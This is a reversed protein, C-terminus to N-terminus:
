IKFLPSTSNPLILQIYHTFSLFSGLNASLNEGQLEMVQSPSSSLLFLSPMQNYSSVCCGISSAAPLQSYLHSNWPYPRHKTFKPIMPIYISNLAMLSSSIELPYTYIFLLFPGLVSIKPVGVHASWYGGSIVYSTPPLLPSVLFATNPMRFTLPSLMELLLTHDCGLLNM